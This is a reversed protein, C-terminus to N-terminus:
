NSGAGVGTSRIRGNPEIYRITQSADVFVFETADDGDIDGTGLAAQAGDWPRAVLSVSTNNTGPTARFIREQDDDVYYVSTANTQWAGVALRTKRTEFDHITDSNDLLTSVNGTTPELLRISNGQLIPLEIASDNDFQATPGVVDATTNLTTFSRTDTTQLDGGSDVLTRAAATYPQTGSDVARVSINNIPKRLTANAYFTANTGPKAGAHVAATVERRDNIVLTVSDVDYPRVAAITGAIPRTRNQEQFPLDARTEITVAPAVASDLIDLARQSHRWATAFQRIARARDELAQVSYQDDAQLLAKGALFADGARDLAATVEEQEHDTLTSRHQRYTEHAATITHNAIDADASALLQSTATVRESTNQVMPNSILSAVNASALIPQLTEIAAADAHFASENTVYTANRHSQVSRAISRIARKSRHFSEISTVSLGRLSKTAALKRNAPPRDAFRESLSIGDDTVLEPEQSASEALSSPQTAASGVPTAVLLAVVLLTILRGDVAKM